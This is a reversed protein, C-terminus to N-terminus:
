LAVRTNKWQNKWLSENEFNSLCCLSTRHISPLLLVKPDKRDERSHPKSPRPQKIVGYVFMTNLIVHLEKSSCSLPLHTERRRENGKEKRSQLWAQWWHIVISSNGEKWDGLVKRYNTQGVYHDKRSSLIRLFQSIGINKLYVKSTPVINSICIKM